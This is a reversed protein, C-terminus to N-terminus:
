DRSEIDRSNGSLNCGRFLKELLNQLTEPTEFTHSRTGPVKQLLESAGLSRSTHGIPLLEVTLEISTMSSARGKIQSLFLAVCLTIHEYTEM